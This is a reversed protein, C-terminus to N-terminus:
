QEGGRKLLEAVLQKAAETLRQQDAEGLGQEHCHTSVWCHLDEDLIRAATDAVLRKAERANM